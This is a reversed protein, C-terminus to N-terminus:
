EDIRRAIRMEGCSHNEMELTVGAYTDYENVRWRDGVGARLDFRREDPERDPYTGRNTWVGGASDIEYAWFFADGPPQDTLQIVSRLWVIRSGSPLLSDEVVTQTERLQSNKYEWVNGVTLPLYNRESVQAFASTVTVLLAAVLYKM